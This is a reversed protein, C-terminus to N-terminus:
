LDFNKGSMKQYFSLMKCQDELSCLYKFDENKDLFAQTELFIGPKYLNDLSDDIDVFDIKIGKLRQVQLKELPRFIFRNHRTLVEIGWRGPAVWNAQYTFPVNKETVGSGAFIKNELSYCTIDKPKGCLFFAMDIVHTSNALFLHPLIKELKGLDQFKHLWETFEFQFSTVGGDEHIYHMASRTSAYFRRNYAVSVTAFNEKSLKNLMQFDSTKLAGPKELLINKVGSKLLSACTSALNEVGVAVIAYKPLSDSNDIFKELGGRYAYFGTVQEFNKASEEGRGVTLFNRKLARLTKAYETSMYGAGVLLVDVNLNNSM